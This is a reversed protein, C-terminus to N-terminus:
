LKAIESGYFASDHIYTLANNDLISFFWRFFGNLLYAYKM